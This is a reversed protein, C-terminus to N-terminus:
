GQTGLEAPRPRGSLVGPMTSSPPRRLVRRWRRRISSPSSPRAPQRWAQTVHNFNNQTFDFGGVLARIAGDQPVVSVLAAEVQPLQVVQWNQKADQM